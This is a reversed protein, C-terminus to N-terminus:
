NDREQHFERIKETFKVRQEPTLMAHFESFKSIMFPKMSEMQGHAEEISRDLNKLDITDKVMEILITNFLKERPGRCEKHKALIDEKIEELKKKQDQNLNL